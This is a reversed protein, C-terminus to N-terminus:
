LMSIQAAYTPYTTKSVYWGQPMMRASAHATTAAATPAASAPLATIGLMALGGLAAAIAPIVRAHLKNRM